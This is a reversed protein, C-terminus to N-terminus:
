RGGAAGRPEEPEVLDLQEDLLGYLKKLAAGAQQFSNFVQTLQQIPEFLNNLYLVFATVVGVTVDGESAFYAGLGIILAFAVGQM